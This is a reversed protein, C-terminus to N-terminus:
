KKINAFANTINYGKTIFDVNFLQKYRNAKDSNNDFINVSKTLPDYSVVAAINGQDDCLEIFAADKPLPVISGQKNACRVRIM